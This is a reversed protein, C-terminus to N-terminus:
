SNVVEIFKELTIRCDGIRVFRFYPKGEEWPFFGDLKTVFDMSYTCGKILIRIDEYKSPDMREDNHKIWNDKYHYRWEFDYEQSTRKRWHTRNGNSVYDLDEELDYYDSMFFYYEEEFCDTYCDEPNEEERCNSECDEKYMEDDFSSFEPAKYQKKSYLYDIAEENLEGSNQIHDIVQEISEKGDLAWDEKVYSALIVEKGEFEPMFIWRQYRPMTEPDFYKVKCGRSFEKDQHLEFIIQNKLPQSGKEIEEYDGTAKIKGILEQITKNQSM